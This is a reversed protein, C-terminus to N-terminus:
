FKCDAANDPMLFHPWLQWFNYGCISLLFYPRTGRQIKVRPGTPALREPSNILAGSRKAGIRIEFFPGPLIM